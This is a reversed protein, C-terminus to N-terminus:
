YAADNRFPIIYPPPRRQGEERLLPPLRIILQCIGDVQRLLKEYNDDSLVNDFITGANRMKRKKVEVFGSREEAIRM